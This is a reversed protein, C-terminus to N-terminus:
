DDNAVVRSFSFCLPVKALFHFAYRGKTGMKLRIALLSEVNRLVDYLKLTNIGLPAEV